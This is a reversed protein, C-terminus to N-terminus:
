QYEEGDDYTKSRKRREAPDSDELATILKIYESVAKEQENIMQHVLYVNKM